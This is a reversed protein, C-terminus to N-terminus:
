PTGAPKVLKWGGPTRVVSVEVTEEDQAGKPRFSMQAKFTDEGDWRGFSYHASQDGSDKHAWELVPRGDRVSWIALDHEPEDSESSMAAAFLKGSPSFAPNDNHVRVEAAGSEPVVLSGGSEALDYTVVYLREAPRYSALAYVVCRDHDVAACAKPDSRLTRTRGGDLSLEIVDGRRSVKGPMGAICRAQGADGADCEMPVDSPGPVAMVHGAVLMMWAAVSGRGVM